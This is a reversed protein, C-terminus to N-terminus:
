AARVSDKPLRRIRAAYAGDGPERGPLTQVTRAAWSRGPFWPSAVELLADARGALFRDVVADNEEEELSCTSYVLVGGPRLREFAAELIRSQRHAHRPLDEPLKRWRAEPHRGLVGTGSCPVDVLVRDFPGLAAPQQGDEAVIVVRARRLRLMNERVRQLRQPSIDTATVSGDGVTAALQASKGGPAACVDLVRDGPEPALLRVALGANVDQAFWGAAFAPDDFVGEPQSLRVVGPHGDVSAAGFIAPLPSTASADAARLYVPSAENNARLLDETHSRGWRRLWRSVLWRPHSYFVSYFGEPDANRDPYAVQRGEAVVRRLIANVFGATGAHEFHKALEVASHVAAREPVRDLWLLQFTGLRLVQRIPPSLSALPRKSFSDVICDLRDRWKVVGAVLQRLFRRDRADTVCTTELLPELRAGAEVEILLRVATERAPDTLRTM